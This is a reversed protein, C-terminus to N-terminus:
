LLLARLQGDVTSRISFSEISQQLETFVLEAPSYLGKDSGLICPEKKKHDDERSRLVWKGNVANKIVEGVYAVLPVFVRPDLAKQM